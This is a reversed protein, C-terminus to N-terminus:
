GHHPIAQEDLLFPHRPRDLGHGQHRDKRPFPETGEWGQRRASYEPMLYPLDFIMLKPDYISLNSPSEQAFQLMGFQLGQVVAEFNGFSYNDFVDIRFRGNTKEEITKKFQGRILDTTPHGTPQTLAIKVVTPAAQAHAAPLLLSLAAVSCLMAKFLKM